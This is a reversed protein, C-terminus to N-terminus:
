DFLIDTFVRAPLALVTIGAVAIREGIGLTGKVLEVHLPRREVETELEGFRGTVRFTRTVPRANVGPLALLEILRRRRKAFLEDVVERSMEVTFLQDVHGDLTVTGQGKLVLGPSELHLNSVNVTDNDLSFDCQLTDFSFPPRDEIEELGQMQSIIYSSDLRGSAVTIGGKGSRSELGGLGGSLSVSASLEGSYKDSGELVPSLVQGIDLGECGYTLFFLETDRVIDGKLEFTGGALRGTASAVEFQSESLLVRCRVQEARYPEWVFEEIDADIRVPATVLEMIEPPFDRKVRTTIPPSVKARRCRLDGHYGVPEDELSLRIGELELTSQEGNRDGALAVLIRDASLDATINPEGNEINLVYVLKTGADEVVEIPLNLCPMLNALQLEDLQLTVASVASPEGAVIAAHGAVRAEDLSLGVEADVPGESEISCKVHLQANVGAPKHFFRQSRVVANTLDADVDWSVTEGLKLLNATLEAPGWMSVGELRNVYSYQSLDYIACKFTVDASGVGSPSLGAYGSVTVPVDDLHLNLSDTTALGNQFSVDGALRTITFPMREGHLTGDTVVLEATADRQAGRNVTVEALDAEVAVTGYPETKVNLTARSEAGSLTLTVEPEKVKGKLEATLRAEDGPVLCLESVTPYAEEAFQATVEEVPFRDFRAILRMEPEDTGYALTGSLSGEAFGADVELEDIQVEKSEHNIAVSMDATGTIDRMFEPGNEINLSSFEIPGSVAIEKGAVGSVELTGGVLGDRVYDSFSGPMFEDIARVSLGALETRVDFRGEFPYVWGTASLRDESVSPLSFVSGVQFGKRDASSRISLEILEVSFPPARGEQAIEFLGSRVHVILSYFSDWALGEVGTKRAADLFPLDWTGDKRRVLRAEPDFITVKLPFARRLLVWILNADAEIKPIQGVTRRVSEGTVFSVTTGTISVKTLGRLTVEGPEIVIGTRQAIEDIQQQVADAVKRRAYRGAALIGAIAAGVAILMMLDKIVTRRRWRKAYNDHGFRIKPAQVRVVKM